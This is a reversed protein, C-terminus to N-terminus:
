NLEIVSFGGIKFQQKNRDSIFKYLMTHTLLDSNMWTRRKEIVIYRINKNKLEKILRAQYDKFDDSWIYPTSLGPHFWLAPHLSPRKALGYLFSSDGFLFFNGANKEFFRLLKHYDLSRYYEPVIGNFKSIEAPTPLLLVFNHKLNKVGESLYNYSFKLLDLCIVISILVSIITTAKKISISESMEKQNSFPFIKLILSHLVGVCFFILPICHEPLNNTMSSFLVTIFILSTSQLLHFCVLNLESCDEQFPVNQLQKKNKFILFVLLIVLLYSYCFSYLYAPFFKFELSSRNEGLKAPM